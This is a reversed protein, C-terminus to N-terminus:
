PRGAVEDDRRAPQAAANQFGVDHEEAFENGVVVNKSALASTRSASASSTAPEDSTTFEPM